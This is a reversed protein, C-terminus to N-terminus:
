SELTRARIECGWSQFTPVRLGSDWSELTPVRLGSDWSDLTPVRLDSDWSALTPIGSGSEKEFGIFNLFSFGFLFHTQRFRLSLLPRSEFFSNEPVLRDRTKRGKKLPQNPANM